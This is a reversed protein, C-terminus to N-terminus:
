VTTFIAKRQSSLFRELENLKIEDKIESDPLKLIFKGELMEDISPQRIHYLELRKKFTEIDNDIRDEQKQRLYFREILTKNKPKIEIFKINDFNRIFISQDKNRPFGDLVTKKIGSRELRELEESLIPLTIQDPVLEGKKQFTEIEPFKKISDSLLSSMSIIHYNSLYKKKFFGKGGCPPGM